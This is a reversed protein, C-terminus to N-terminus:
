NPAQDVVAKRRINLLIGGVGCGLADAVMDALSYSRNPIFAGQIIEIVIGYVLYGLVIFLLTRSLNRQSAEGQGSRAIFPLGLLIVLSAFLGVHVFKDFGIDGLWDEEPLKDGPICFLTTALIFMGVAPWFTRLNIQKM